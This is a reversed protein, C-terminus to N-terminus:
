ITARQGRRTWRALLTSTLEDLSAESEDIFISLYKQPIEAEDRVDDLPDVDSNPRFSKGRRIWRRHQPLPAPPSPPEKEDGALGASMLKEVDAQSLHKREVGATQLLRRIADVVATCDVPERGPEKM